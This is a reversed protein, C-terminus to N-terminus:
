AINTTPRLYSQSFHCVTDLKSALSSPCFGFEVFPRVGSELLADVLEDIYQFNYSVKGDVERYVQMDDHYLGHFRVYKFGCDRVSRRLHAQWNARLGENARGAGVVQAWFHHLTEPDHQAANASLVITDSSAAM